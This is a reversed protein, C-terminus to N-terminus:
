FYIEFTSSAVSCVFASCLNLLQDILVVSCFYISNNIKTTLDIAIFLELKNNYILDIFYTNRILYFAWHVYWRKSTLVDYLM